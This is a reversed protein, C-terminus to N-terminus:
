WRLGFTIPVITTYTNSTFGKLYRAEAFIKVSSWPSPMNIGGGVDFGGSDNTISGSSAYGQMLMFPMHVSALGILIPKHFHLDRGVYGGGGLVYASFGRRLSWRITPDATFAYVRASGDPQNLADLASKTIGVDSFMFNGTVGFHRSFFYGGNLEFDGGQSIDSAVAGTSTTYGAGVSFTVHKFTEENQGMLLSPLVIALASNCLSRLTM